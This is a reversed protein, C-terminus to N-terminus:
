PRVRYLAGCGYVGYFDFVERSLGEAVGSYVGYEGTQNRPDNYDHFFVFSGPLLVHHLERCVELVPGYEHSHDVFSFGFKRGQAALRRVVAAGDETSATVFDGLDNEALHKLTRETCWPELDVTHIRQPRRANRLATAMIVASLGQYSGIELVDGRGFYAMEYLKLADAVQLWGPLAEGTQAHPLLITLGNELQLSGIRQHDTDIYEGAFDFTRKYPFARNGLEHPEPFTDAHQHM